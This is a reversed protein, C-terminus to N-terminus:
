RFGSLLRELEDPETPLAATLVERGGETIVVDDEIRVGIGELAPVSPCSGPAFYLGPEVTFAMGPELPIPGERSRYSGVDHTDLGLWHSTRHPYFTGFSRDELAEDVTGQLAGLGILGEILVRTTEDHIEELTVGPRCADLGVKQAALVALYVDRAAGEFTGSAPVTRTIDAAYYDLEAGADMLVLDGEALRSGNDVYHLTCGNQGSGVITSFSPGNAGGRRFGSELAAEIEWEGVGPAISGMASAFSAVTIEAASRMRALEGADKRQRMTDLIMGPDALVQPGVGSRARGGRGARLADRVIRDCRVDAGLRYYMRDGGTLMHACEDELASLPLVADAGYREKVADLSLRPGTWLEAAPDREAVFLTFRQKEAFGRLLCVCDPQGWGTMYYLESDPRFRYESDGNKFRLPAAPLLMSGDPLRALAFARRDHFPLAPLETM